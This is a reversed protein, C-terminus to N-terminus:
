RVSTSRERHRATCAFEEREEADFELLSLLDKLKDEALTGRGRNLASWYQQSVDLAKVITSTKLGQDDARSRIRLMLEWNAVTPSTGTM